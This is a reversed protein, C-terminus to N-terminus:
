PTPNLPRENQWLRFFSLCVPTSLDNLYLEMCRCTHAGTDGDGAALCLVHGASRLGRRSQTVARPHNSQNEDNHNEQSKSRFISCLTCISVAPSIDPHPPVAQLTRSSLWPARVRLRASTLRGLGLHLSSIQLCGRSQLVTQVGAWQERFRSTRDTVHSGWQRMRPTVPLIFHFSCLAKLKALCRKVAVIIFYM